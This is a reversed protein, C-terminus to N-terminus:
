IQKHHFSHMKHYLPQVELDAQNLEIDQKIMSELEVLALLQTERKNQSSDNGAPRTNFTSTILSDDRSKASSSITNKSSVASSVANQYESLVINRQAPPLQDLLSKFKPSINQAFANLFGSFLLFFLFTKKM